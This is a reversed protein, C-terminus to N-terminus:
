AATPEEVSPAAACGDAGGGSLGRPGGAGDLVARKEATVGSPICIIVVPRFMPRRPSAMNIFYNIMTQTTLILSSADKLPRLAVINGPAAIMHKAEEGM